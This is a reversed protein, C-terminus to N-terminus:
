VTEVLVLMVVVRESDPMHSITVEWACSCSRPDAAHCCSEYLDVHLGLVVGREAPEPRLCETPADVGLGGAHGVEFGHAEDVELLLEPRKPHGNEACGAM